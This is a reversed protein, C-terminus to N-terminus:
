TNNCIDHLHPSAGPLQAAWEKLQNNMGEILLRVVLEKAQLTRRASVMKQVVDMPYPTNSTAPHTGMSIFADFLEDM